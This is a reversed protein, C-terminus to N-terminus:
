PLFDSILWFEPEGGMSAVFAIQSGDPSWDFDGLRADEPLGTPLEQSEGDDLSTIWIKGGFSHAIKSGDPSYALQSQWGSRVDRVLAEIQGGEVPITKITNDSFFAISEGDPTFTIAGGGVSDAEATLQRADGGQSSVLYITHVGGEVNPEFGDTFTIWQGDPSWCPYGEMSPDSTLREPHGGGLAITWVDM